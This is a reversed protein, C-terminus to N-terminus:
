PNAGDSPAVQPSVLGIQSDDLIEQDFTGYQQLEKAEKDYTKLFGNVINEDLSGNPSFNEVINEDRRIQQRASEYGPRSLDLKATGSVFYLAMSIFTMLVAFLIALLIGFPLGYKKTLGDFKDLVPHKPRRWPLLYQIRKPLKRKKTNFISM